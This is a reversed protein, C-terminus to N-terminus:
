DRVLLVRMGDTHGAGVEKWGTPTQWDTKRM